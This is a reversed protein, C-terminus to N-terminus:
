AHKKGEVCLRLAPIIMGGVGNGIIVVVIFILAELSAIGAAAFYFMDAVSHEFGSLIFVPVCFLIGWVTQKEKYLAVALYMLMGCFIAVIFAATLPLALKAECMSLAKEARAPIAYAIAWGSATTGIFNGLLCLFAESVAERSHVLVLFGVRGTYLSVGLYCVGLLGVSFLVAGVYKVDCALYVAGGIGILIGAIVGSTLYKRLM